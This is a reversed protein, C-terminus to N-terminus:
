SFSEQSSLGFIFSRWTRFSDQITNFLVLLCHVDDLFKSSPINSLALFCVPDPRSGNEDLWYGSSTFSEPSFHVRRVILQLLKIMFDKWGYVPIGRLYNRPEHPYWPTVSISLFVMQALIVNVANKFIAHSDNLSLPSSNSQSLRSPISITALECRGGTLPLQLFANLYDIKSFFKFGHLQYAIDEPEPKWCRTQRLVKNM